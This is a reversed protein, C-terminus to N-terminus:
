DPPRHELSTVREELDSLRSKGRLMSRIAVAIGALFGILVVFSVLGWITENVDAYVRFHHRM